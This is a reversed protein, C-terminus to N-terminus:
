ILFQNQNLLNEFIDGGQKAQPQGIIGKNTMNLPLSIDLGSPKVQVASDPVRMVSARSNTAIGGGQGYDTSLKYAYPVVSKRSSIFLKSIKCKTVVKEWVM